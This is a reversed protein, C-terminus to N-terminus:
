HRNNRKVKYKKAKVYFVHSCRPCRVKHRGAKRPLRLVSGCMTCDRFIHSVDDRNFSQTKRSTNFSFVRKAWRKAKLYRENEQRRKYINRSMMRFTMFVFVLSILISFSISVITRAPESQVVAIVIYESLILIILTVTLFNYLNDTGYRGYMFRYLKEKFRGM